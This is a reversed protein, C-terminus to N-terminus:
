QHAGRRTRGSSEVSGELNEDSRLVGFGLVLTVLGALAQRWPLWEHAVLDHRVSEVYRRRDDRCSHHPARRHQVNAAGSVRRRRDSAYPGRTSSHAILLDESAM